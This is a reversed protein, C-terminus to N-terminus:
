LFGSSRVNYLNCCENGYSSGTNTTIELNSM